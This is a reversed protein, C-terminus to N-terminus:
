SFFGLEHPEFFNINEKYYRYEFGFNEKFYKRNDENSPFEKNENQYETVQRLAIRVLHKFPYERGNSAKVYYNYFMTNGPLGYENIYAIAAQIHEKNIQEFKM